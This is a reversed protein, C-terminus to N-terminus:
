DEKHPEDYLEMYKLYMECANPYKQESFCYKQGIRLGIDLLFHYLNETEPRRYFGNKVLKYIILGNTNNKVAESVSLIDQLSLKQCANKDYVEILNDLFDEYSIVPKSDIMQDLHAPPIHFNNIIYKDANSSPEFQIDLNNIASPDLKIYNAVKSLKNIKHEWNKRLDNNKINKIISDVQSLNHLIDDRTKLRQEIFSAVIIPESNEDVWGEEDSGIDDDNFGDDEEDFNLDDVNEPQEITIEEIVKTIDDLELSDSLSEPM